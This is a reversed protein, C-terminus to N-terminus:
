MVGWNQNTPSIFEHTFAPVTFANYFFCQGAILHLRNARWPQYCCYVHVTPQQLSNQDSHSLSHWVSTPCYHALGNRQSKVVSKSYSQCVSGIWTDDWSRLWEIVLYTLIILRFLVLSNTKLHGLTGWVQIGSGSDPISRMFLQLNRPKIIVSLLDTVAEM